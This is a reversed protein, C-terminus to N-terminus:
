PGHLLTSWQKIGLLFAAIPFGFCVCKRVQDDVLNIVLILDYENRRDVM